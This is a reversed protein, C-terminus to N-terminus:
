AAPILDGIEVALAKALAKAARASLNKGREIECLYAQSLGAAKALAGQSLGRWARFTRVRNAGDWIRDMVEAPIMVGGGARALDLARIDEAMEAREMLDQILGAQVSVVHRRPLSTVNKLTRPM